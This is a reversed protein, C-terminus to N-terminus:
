INCRLLATRYHEPLCPDHVSSIGILTASSMRGSVASSFLRSLQHLLCCAHHVAQECLGARMNAIADVLAALIEEAAMSRSCCM